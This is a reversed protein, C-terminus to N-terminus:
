QVTREGLLELYRAELAENDDDTAITFGSVTVEYWVFNVNPMELRLFTGRTRNKYRLQVAFLDEGLELTEAQLINNM